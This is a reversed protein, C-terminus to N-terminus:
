GNERRRRLWVRGKETLRYRQSPSRPAEPQTREIWCGALAPDLYHVRFSPRHVFGLAAMLAARGLEQGALAEIVQGVQDSVQDSVQDAAHDAAAAERLSELLAALM